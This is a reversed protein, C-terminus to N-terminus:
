PVGGKGGARGPWGGCQGATGQPTSHAPPATNAPTATAVPPCKMWLRAKGYCSPTANESVRGGRGRGGRGKNRPHPKSLAPAAPKTSQLMRHCGIGGSGAGSAVMSPEPSPSPEAQSGNLRERQHRQQGCEIVCECERDTEGCRGDLSASKSLGSSM